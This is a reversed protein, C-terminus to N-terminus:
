QFTNKILGNKVIGKKSWFEDGVIFNKRVIKARHTTKGDKCVRIYVGENEGDFFKSKAGVLKLLEEKTIKGNFLVPVQFITTGKLLNKLVDRSVFSTTKIDFLDYALFYDPLSQYNISHCAYLWEGFLISDQPIIQKLENEHIEIWMNLLKFQPHYSSSVYHSRNQVCINGDIISIGMNAGDVKEEVIVNNNLMEKVDKDTMILDDRSAGGLNILHKTRPFKIINSSMIILELQNNHYYYVFKIEFM